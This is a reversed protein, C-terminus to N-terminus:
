GMENLDVEILTNKTRTEAVYKLNWEQELARGDGREAAKRAHTSPIRWPDLHVVTDWELGKAKHISSLIVRARKEAFIEDIVKELEKTGRAGSGQAISVLCEHKDRIAEGQAERGNLRAIESAGEAWDRAKTLFTGIELDAERGKIKSVLGRLGKGIDRGLMQVGIGDRLLQFALSFLPANNRCLVALSASPALRFKEIESWTWGAKGREVTGDSNGPWARFGPAHEQQREVIRKPCRFTLTLGRDTWEGRLRRISEMSNSDAGRWGYIAQKPDGCVMLRSNTGTAKALMKHQLPSLDQAEDVLITPYQPFVVGESVTPWYVQDDFSIKGELVLANNQRLVENALSIRSQDTEIWLDEAIEKWASYDISRKEDPLRGASQAGSVLRRTGDWEDSTLKMSSREAEESLIKGVKKEDLDWKSVSPLARRLVGFGLGNMTKTEFNSPFRKKMEEAISKNFALALSPGRIKRALLELSTTKACGAYAKIMLSDRLATGAEMIREQEETPVIEPTKNEPSM